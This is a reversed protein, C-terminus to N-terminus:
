TPFPPEVPKTTETVTLLKDACDLLFEVAAEASQGDRDNFEFVPHQNSVRRGDHRRNVAERTLVDWMPGTQTQRDGQVGALMIAGYISFAVAEGNPRRSGAPDLVPVARGTVDRANAGQCWGKDGPQRRWFRM